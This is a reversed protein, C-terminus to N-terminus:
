ASRRRKAILRRRKEVLGLAGPSRLWDDVAKYDRYTALCAPCSQLHRVLPGMLITPLVNSIFDSIALHFDACRPDSM